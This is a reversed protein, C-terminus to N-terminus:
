PATCGANFPDAVDLALAHYIVCSAWELGHQQTGYYDDGHAFLLAVAYAGRPTSVIGQENMTAYAAASSTSGPPLWGAKHHMAQSVAPPLQTGIWGGYGSRPSLTSWELLKQRADATVGKGKWVSELFAVCGFPTFFNNGSVPSPCTSAQRTKDYDWSCLWFASSPIGLVTSTFTNVADAGGALDILRGAASNDSAMFTPLADAEVQAPPKAHVAAMAWAFKASSASVHAENGNLNWRDGTPLWEVAIAANTKPSAAVATTNIRALVPTLNPPAVCAALASWAGTGDPAICAHSFQQVQGGPGAHEDELPLGAPGSPGGSARWAELIPGHVGWASAAADALVIVLPGLTGGSFDQMRAAGSRYVYTGSGADAPQGAGAPTFRGYAAFIAPYFQGDADCAIV